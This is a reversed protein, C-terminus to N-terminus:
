RGTPGSGREWSGGYAAARHPREHVVITRFANLNLNARRMLVVSALEVGIVSAGSRRLGAMLAAQPGPHLRFSRTLENTPLQLPKVLVWRLRRDQKSLACAKSPETTPIQISERYAVGSSVELLAGAREPSEASVTPSTENNKM